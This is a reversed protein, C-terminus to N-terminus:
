SPPSAAAIRASVPAHDSGGREGVRFDLFRLKRNALIRDIRLWPLLHHAPFTYGLGSGVAAFGDQYRGLWTDFVHSHEPLNTDGAIIM